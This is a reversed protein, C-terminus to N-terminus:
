FVKGPLVMTEMKKIEEETQSHRVREKAKDVQLLLDPLLKTWSGPVFYNGLMETKEKQEGDVDTVLWNWKLLLATNDHGWNGLPVYWVYASTQASTKIAKGVHIVSLVKEYCIFFFNEIQYIKQKNLAVTQWEGLYKAINRVAEAYEMDRCIKLREQYIDNLEKLYDDNM